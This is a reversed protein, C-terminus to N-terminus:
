RDDRSIAETIRKRSPKLSIAEIFQVPKARLREGLHGLKSYKKSLRTVAWFSSKRLEKKEISQSFHSRRGRRTQSQTKWGFPRKGFAKKEIEVEWQREQSLTKGNGL